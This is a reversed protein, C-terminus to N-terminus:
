VIIECLMVMFNLYKKQVALTHFNDINQTIVTVNKHKDLEKLYNHIINPKYGLPNMYTKYFNYFIDPHNMFFHHSLIEEPPYDFKMNYLGDQSRFDKLGSLTSIGAGSFFVINKSNNIIEILKDIM